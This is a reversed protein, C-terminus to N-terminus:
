DEPKTLMPRLEMGKALNGDIKLQGTMYLKDFSARGQAMALLHDFSATVYARLAPASTRMLTNQLRVSSSMKREIASIFFFM